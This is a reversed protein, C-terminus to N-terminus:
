DGVRVTEALSQIRQLLDKSHIKMHPRLGALCKITVWYSDVFPWVLIQLLSYLHHTSGDGRTVHTGSELTFVQQTVLQEFAEELHIVDQTTDKRVFEMMLLEYLFLGKEMLYKKEVTISAMADFACVLMAERCFWHLIKNRYYGLQIMNSYQDRGDIAPEILDQSSRILKGLLRLADRVIVNPSRGQTGSVRGNRRVIEKRLWECQVVLESPAIGQRYLLLITAVLHTTTCTTCTQMADVIEYALDQVLAVRNTPGHTSSKIFDGLRIPSAFEVSISGFLSRHAVLM